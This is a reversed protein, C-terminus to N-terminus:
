YTVTKSYVTGSETGDDGSVSYGTKVRYKGSDVEYTKSIYALSSTTSKSWSEVDSWSGRSYCQLTVTLEISKGSKTRQVYGKIAASGDDSINLSSSAKNIYVYQVSIPAGIAESLTAAEAHVPLSFVAAMILCAGLSVIKKRLM